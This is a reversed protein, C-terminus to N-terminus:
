FAVGLAWKTSTVAAAFLPLPVTLLAGFSCFPLSLARSSFPCMCRAAGVDLILFAIYSTTSSSTIGECLLILLLPLFSRMSIKPPCILEALVRWISRQPPPQPSNDADSLLGAEHVAADAVAMTVQQAASCQATSRKWKSETVSSTARFFHVKSFARPNQKEGWRKRRKNAGERNQAHKTFVVLTCIFYRECRGCQAEPCSFPPSPAIHWLGHRQRSPSHHQARRQHSSCRLHRICRPYLNHRNLPKRLLRHQKLNRRRQKPHRRNCQQQLQQM